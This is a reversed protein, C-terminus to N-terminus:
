VLCAANGVPSFTGNFRVPGFGIIQDSTPSTLTAPDYSQAIALLMSVATLSLRSPTYVSPRIHSTNFRVAYRYIHIHGM